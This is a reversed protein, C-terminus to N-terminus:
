EAPSANKTRKRYHDPELHTERYAIVAARPIIWLRGGSAQGWQFAGPFRGLRLQACLWSKDIGLLEAASPADLYDQELQQQLTRPM